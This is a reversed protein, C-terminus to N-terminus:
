YKLRIQTVLFALTSLVIKKLKTFILKIDEFDLEDGFLIDYKSIRALHHDAPHLYSVLCWKFYENDDINQVNIVAKSPKIRKTLQYVQHWSLSQVKIEFHLRKATLLYTTIM